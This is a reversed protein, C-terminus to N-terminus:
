NDIEFSQRGCSKSCQEHLSEYRIPFTITFNIFDDIFGPIKSTLKASTQAMDSIKSSIESVMNNGKGALAGITQCLSIGASTCSHTETSSNFGAAEFAANESVQWYGDKNKTMISRVSPAENKNKQNTGSEYNYM